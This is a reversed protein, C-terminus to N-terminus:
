LPPTIVFCCRVREQNFLDGYGCWTACAFRVNKLMDKSMTASVLFSFLAALPARSGAGFAFLPSAGFIMTSQSLAHRQYLKRCFMM